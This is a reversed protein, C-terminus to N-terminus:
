KFSKLKIWTSFKVKARIWDFAPKWKFFQGLIEHRWVTRLRLVFRRIDYLDEKCGPCCALSWIQVIKTLNPSIQDCSTRSVNLFAWFPGECGNSNRSSGNPWRSINARSSESRDENSRKSCRTPPLTDLDLSWIQHYKYSFDPIGFRSIRDKYRPPRFASPWVNKRRPRLTFFPWITNM